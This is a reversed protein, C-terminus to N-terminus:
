RPEPHVAWGQIMCNRLQREAEALADERSQFVQVSRLPENSWALKLEFGGTELDTLLFSIQRGAKQLNWLQQTLSIRKSRGVDDM